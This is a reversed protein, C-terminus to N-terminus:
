SYENNEEIKYYLVEKNGKVKELNNKRNPSTNSMQKRLLKRKFKNIQKYVEENYIDTYLVDNNKSYQIINNIFEKNDENDFKSYSSDREFYPPDLFLLSNSYEIETYDLNLIKTKKLKMKIKNYSLKNFTYSVNGYSQNMGNPGFRLFSNICSNALFYLYIGKEKKDTFHIKENYTNRFNYYSEKNNKIDGFKNFIYRKRDSWDKYNFEKIANWISIINSDVDNIIYEDFKDITNIFVSGSGIFPEIFIKKNSKNIIENIIEVFNYKSGSYRMMRINM